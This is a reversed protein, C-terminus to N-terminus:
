TAGFRKIRTKVVLDRALLPYESECSQAYALLASMAHPDHDLDLVFYECREHKGGKRHSRDVRTVKFKSYLSRARDGM